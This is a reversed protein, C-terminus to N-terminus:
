TAQITLSPKYLMNVGTHELIIRGHCPNISDGGNLLPASQPEFFFTSTGLSVCGCHCLWAKDWVASGTTPHIGCPTKGRQHQPPSCPARFQQLTQQPDQLMDPRVGEQLQAGGRPGRHRHSFTCGSVSVGRQTLAVRWPGPDAGQEECDGTARPCFRTEPIHCDGSRDPPGALKM